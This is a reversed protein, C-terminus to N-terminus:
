YYQGNVNAGPEVTEFSILSGLKSITVLIMTFKSFTSRTHLLHRACIDLEKTALPAYVQDYQSMMLVAATFLKENTFFTDHESL